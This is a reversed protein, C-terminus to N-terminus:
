DVLHIEVTQALGITISGQIGQNRPLRRGKHEDISSEHAASRNHESVHDSREVGAM